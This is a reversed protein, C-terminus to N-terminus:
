KKLRKIKKFTNEIIELSKLEPLIEYGCNPCSIKNCNFPCGKCKENGCELFEYGCFECKIIKSDKENNNKDGM